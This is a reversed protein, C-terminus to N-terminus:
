MSEHVFYVYVFNFLEETLSQVSIFSSLLSM